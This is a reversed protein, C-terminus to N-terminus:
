LVASHNLWMPQSAQFIFQLLHFFSYDTDFLAFFEGQGSTAFLWGQWLM